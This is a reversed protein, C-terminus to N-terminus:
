TDISMLLPAVVSRSPGDVAERLAALRLWGIGNAPVQQLAMELDAQARRLWELSDTTTLAAGVILESRDFRLQPGPNAAIARDLAELGDKAERSTLPKRDRVREVAAQADLAYWAGWAVPWALYVLSAGGIALLGRM